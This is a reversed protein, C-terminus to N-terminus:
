KKSNAPKQEQNSMPYELDGTKKEAILTKRSIAEIKEPNWLFNFYAIEKQRDRPMPIIRANYVFQTSALSNLINKKGVWTLKRQRYASLTRKIQPRKMGHSTPNIQGM